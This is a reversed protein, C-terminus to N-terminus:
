KKLLESKYDTQYPKHDFRWKTQDNMQFQNESLNHSCYGNTVNSKGTLRNMGKNDTEM